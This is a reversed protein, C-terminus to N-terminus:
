WGTASPAARATSRGALPRSTSRTSMALSRSVCLAVSLLDVQLQWAERAAEGEAKALLRQAVEAEYRLRELEEEIEEIKGYAEAARDQWRHRVQRQIMVRTEQENRPVSAMHRGGDLACEAFGALRTHARPMYAELAQVADSSAEHALIVPAEQM